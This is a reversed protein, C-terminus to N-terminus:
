LKVIDYNHSKADAETVYVGGYNVANSDFYILGEKFQGIVNKNGISIINDSITEYNVMYSAYPTQYTKTKWNYIDSSVIKLTDKDISCFAYTYIGQSKLDDVNYETKEKLITITNKDGSDSYQVLYYNGLSLKVNSTCSTLLALSVLPLLILRKM